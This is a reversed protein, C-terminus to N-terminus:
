PAGEQNEPCRSFLNQTQDLVTDSQIWYPFLVPLSGHGLGLAAPIDLSDYARLEVFGPPLLGSGTMSIVMRSDVVAQYCATEPQAPDRFQKLQVAQVQMDLTAQDVLAQVREDEVPAPGRESFLLEVPGLPGIPGPSPVEGGASGGTLLRQRSQPTEPSYKPFVLTDVAFPYPDRLDGPLDFWGQVKPFGLVTRGTVVSWPADVVLFPNFLALEVPQAQDGEGDWRVVPISFMMENQPIYGMNRYPPPESYMRPYLNITLYVLPAMATYRFGMVEPPELNLYRDVMGQLHPLSAQLPFGWTEMDPFSFPPPLAPDGDQYLYPIPSM